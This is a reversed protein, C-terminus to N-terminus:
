VFAVKLGIGFDKTERFFLSGNSLSLSGLRVWRVRSDDTDEKWAVGEEGRVFLPGILGLGCSKFIKDFLVLLIENMAYEFGSDTNLTAIPSFNLLFFKVDARRVVDPFFTREFDM